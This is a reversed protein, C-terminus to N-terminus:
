DVVWCQMLVQHDTADHCLSISALPSCLPSLFHCDCNLLLGLSTRIPNIGPLVSVRLTKRLRQTDTKSCGLSLLFSALRTESQDPLHVRSTVPVGARRSYHLLRSGGSHLDCSSRPLQGACWLNRCRALLRIPSVFLASFSTLPLHGWPPPICSSSALHTTPPCFPLLIYWFIEVEGFGLENPLHFQLFHAPHNWFVFFPSIERM